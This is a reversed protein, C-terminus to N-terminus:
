RGPKPVQARSTSHLRWSMLAKRFSLSTADMVVTGPHVGCISCTFGDSLDVDLKNIFSYCASKFHHYKFYYSVPKDSMGGLTKELVTYETFM